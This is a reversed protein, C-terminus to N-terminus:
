NQNKALKNKLVLAFIFGAVTHSIILYLFLFIKKLRFDDQAFIEYNSNFIIYFYLAILLFNLISFILVYNWKRLKYISIAWFVPILVVIIYLFYM